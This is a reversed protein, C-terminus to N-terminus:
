WGLALAGLIVVLLISSLWKVVRHGLPERQFAEVACAREDAFADSLSRPYRRTTPTM